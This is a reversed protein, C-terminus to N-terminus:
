FGGAKRDVLHWHRASSDHGFPSISNGYRDALLQGRSPASPWRTLYFFFRCNPHHNTGKTFVLLMESLALSVGLYSGSTIKSSHLQTRNKFSSILLECVVQMIKEHGPSNGLGVNLDSSVRAWCYGM